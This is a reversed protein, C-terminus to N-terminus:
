PQVPPMHPMAISQGQPLSVLSRLLFRLRVWWSRAEAPLRLGSRIAAIVYYPARILDRLTMILVTLWAVMPGRTLRMFLIQGRTMEVAKWESMHATSAAGHHLIQVDPHYIVLWGARKARHCWETEEGYMFFRTDLAGVQDLLERRVLMFCGSVSDVEQVAELDRSAYRTDGLFAHQRQLRNSVLMNIVFQRLTLFRMISSQQTGDDLWVRAGLIGVTPNAQLYTMATALTDAHIRADPNLLLVFRGHAAEFGIVNGYAFGGNVPSDIVTIDPFESRLAASSQDKSQNDVVIIEVSLGGAHQKVSRVAELTLDRTNYSVIVVSIDHTVTQPLRVRTSPALADNAM